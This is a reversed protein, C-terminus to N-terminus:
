AYDPAAPAAGATVAGLTDVEPSFEGAYHNIAQVANVIRYVHPGGFRVEVVYREAPAIVVSPVREEREFRSVDSAVVKIPAGGFSLNFTRSSSVNTIFFRVIDGRSVHLDYRPEGNVLLVNGVRGMLAFDPADKGFPILTDGNVLLDSLMLTQEHNVPSYYEPEPSDVRINGALGMGQEIDERVHPHYWYIGADPFHVTYVFNGGPKVSDQTLGPVGDFRNDLRVGHWHVTSPLEIRNHFRVTITAGQPVRILPGPVQGNFGYMAFVHGRIARSVLMATLDLTDGDRLAKIQTPKAAPLTRANLGAGPLFSGVPPVLGVLGPIMPMGKPMPVPMPMDMQMAMSDSPATTVQRRTAPRRSSDSTMGSMGPMGPMPKKVPKQQPLALGPMAGIIAILVTVRLSCLSWLTM